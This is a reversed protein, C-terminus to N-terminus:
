KRIQPRTTSSPVLNLNRPNEEDSDENIVQRNPIRSPVQSSLDNEKKLGNVGSKVNSIPKAEKQHFEYAAKCFCSM